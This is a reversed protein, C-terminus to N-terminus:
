GPRVGIALVVRPAGICAANLPVLLTGTDGVSGRTDGVLLDSWRKPAIRRQQHSELRDSAQFDQQVLDRASPSAWRGIGGGRRRRKM